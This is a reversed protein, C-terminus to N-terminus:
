FFLKFVIAPKTGCNVSDLQEVVGLEEFVAGVEREDHVSAVYGDLERFVVADVNRVFDTGVTSGNVGVDVGDADLVLEKYLVESRVEVSFVAM